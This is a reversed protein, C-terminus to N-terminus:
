RRRQGRQGHGIRLQGPLDAHVGVPTVHFHHPLPTPERQPLVSFVTYDVAEGSLRVALLDLFTPRVETPVTRGLAAARAMQHGLFLAVILFFQWGIEAITAAIRGVGLRLVLGILLAAGALLFIRRWM